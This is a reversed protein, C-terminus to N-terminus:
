QGSEHQLQSLHIQRRLATPFIAQGEAGQNVTMSGLEDVVRSQRPYPVQYQYMHVQM